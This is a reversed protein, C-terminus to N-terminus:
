SGSLTLTQTGTAAGTDTSTLSGGVAGAAPRTRNIVVTCFGGGPVTGGPTCATPLQTGSSFQTSTAVNAITESTINLNGNGTNVVCVTLPTAATGWALTTINAGALCTPDATGNRFAVAAQSAIGILQGSQPSAAGNDTFTITGTRQTTGRAAGTVTFRVSVSCSQQPALTAGTCNDPGALAGSTWLYTPLTGGTTAVGTVTMSAGTGPPATNTLTVTGVASLTTTGTSPLTITMPNPSISVTARAAVGTGTLTVSAPSVTAGTYAVTLTRSFAAATGPAFQVQITCAAGVALTAGCNPAGAPFTGTTVRSFPQPTGGGFTFTGGALPQNGTNLISVNLTNSTTGTAWNGFAVPSPGISATSTPAVSSGTLQVPSNLVPVNGTITVTGTATVGATAPATYQILITCTSGAGLAGPGCTGGNRAFTGSGTAPATAVAVNLQNFPGSGVNSLTLTQTASTAGALTGVFSLSSPTVLVVAGSPAQYEVAGIDAPDRPSKPRPNGFFDTSPV